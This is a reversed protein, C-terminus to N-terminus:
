RPSRGNSAATRSPPSAPTGTTIAFGSPAAAERNATMACATAAQVDKGGQPPLTQSAWGRWSEFKPRGIGQRMLSQLNRVGGFGGLYGVGSYQGEDRRPSPRLAKRDQQPPPTHLPATSAEDGTLRPSSRLRCGEPPQARRGPPDPATDGATCLTRRLYDSREPSSAALADGERRPRPLPLPRIGGSTRSVSGYLEQFVVCASRRDKASVTVVVGMGPPPGSARGARGMAEACRRTLAFLRTHRTTQSKHNTTAADPM